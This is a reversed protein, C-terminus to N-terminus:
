FISKDKLFDNPFSNAEILIDFNIKQLNMRERRRDWYSLGTVFEKVMESIDSTVISAFLVIPLFSFGLRRYKPARNSYSLSAGARYAGPRDRYNVM